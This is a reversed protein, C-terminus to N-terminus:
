AYAKREEADYGKMYAKEEDSNSGNSDAHHLKGTQGMAEPAAERMDDDHEVDLNKGLAEPGVIALIIVYVFVCARCEDTQHSMAWLRLM